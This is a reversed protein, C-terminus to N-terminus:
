IIKEDRKEEQAMINADMNFLNELETVISEDLGERVYIHTDLCSNTCIDVDVGVELNNEGAFDCLAEYYVANWSPLEGFNEVYRKVIEGVEINNESDFMYEIDWIGCNLLDSLVNVMNDYRAKMERQENKGKLNYM